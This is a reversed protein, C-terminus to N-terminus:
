PAVVMLVGIRHPQGASSDLPADGHAGGVVEAIVDNLIGDVNVIQLRSNQVQEAQVVLLQGVAELPAIVTQRVNVALYDGLQEGSLCLFYGTEEAAQPKATRLFRDMGIRM